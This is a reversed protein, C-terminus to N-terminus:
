LKLLAQYFIRQKNRDAGPGTYAGLLGEQLKKVHEPNKPDFKDGLGSLIGAEELYEKIQEMTVNDYLRGGKQMYGMRNRVFEPLKPLGPNNAPIEKLSGGKEKKPLRKVKGNHTRAFRAESTEM